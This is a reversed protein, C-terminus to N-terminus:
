DEEDADDPALLNIMKWAEEAPPLEVEQVKERLQGVVNNLLANARNRAETRASLAADVREEVLEEVRKNVVEEVHQELEHKFTTFRKTIYSHLRVEESEGVLAAFGARAPDVTPNVYVSERGYAHVAYVGWRHSPSPEWQKAETVHVEEGGFHVAIRNMQRAFLVRRDDFCELQDNMKPRGHEKM